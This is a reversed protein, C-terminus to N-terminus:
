FAFRSETPQVAFSKWTKTILTRATVWNVPGDELHYSVRPMPQGHATLIVNQTCRSKKSNPIWRRPKANPMGLLETLSSLRRWLRLEHSVKPGIALTRRTPGGSGALRELPGHSAITDTHRRAPRSLADLWFGPFIRPLGVVLCIRARIGVAAM